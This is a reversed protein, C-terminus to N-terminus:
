PTYRELFGIFKGSANWWAGAGDPLRVKIVEGFDPHNALTATGDELIQGLLDAGTKTNQWANGGSAMGELWSGDRVSHKQLAHGVDSLGNRATAVANDYLTKLTDESVESGTGNESQSAAEAAKAGGLGLLTTCIRSNVCAVAAKAGGTAWASSAGAAVEAIVPAAILGGLALGVGKVINEVDHLTNCESGGGQACNAYFQYESAASDQTKGPYWSNDGTCGGRMEPGESCAIM